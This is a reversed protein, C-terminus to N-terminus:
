YFLIDYHDGEPRVRVQQGNSLTGNYNNNTTFSTQGTATYLINTIKDWQGSNSGRGVDVKYGNAHSYQGSSHGLESGGTIVIQTGVESQIHKIGAISNPRLGGVSTCGGSVDQYRVGEPCPNKGVTVTPALQNRVTAENGSPEGGGDGGPGGTDEGDDQEEAGGDVPGVTSDQGVRAIDLKFKVLDPNIVYLILYSALALILGGIASYVRSLGKTKVAPITSAMYEVGGIVIMMVSLLVILGMFTKVAFSAYNLSEQTTSIVDPGEIASPELLQYGVALTQQPLITVVLISIIAIIKLIKIM